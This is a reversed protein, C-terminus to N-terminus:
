FLENGIKNIEREREQISCILAKAKIPLGEERDNIIWECGKTATLAGRSRLRQACM